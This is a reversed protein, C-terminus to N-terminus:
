SVHRPVGKIILWIRFHRRLATRLRALGDMGIGVHEAGADTATEARQPCPM